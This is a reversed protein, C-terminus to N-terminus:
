AFNLSLQQYNQFDWLPVFNKKRFNFLWKDEKEKEIAQREDYIWQYMEQIGDYLRFAQDFLDECELQLGAYGEDKVYIQGGLEPVEVWRCMESLQQGKKRIDFYVGLFSKKSNVIQNTIYNTNKEHKDLSECVCYQLDEKLWELFAKYLPYTDRNEDNSM